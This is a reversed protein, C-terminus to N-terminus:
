SLLWGLATALLGGKPLVLGDGIAPPFSKGKWHSHEQGGVGPLIFLEALIAVTPIPM